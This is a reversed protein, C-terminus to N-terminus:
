GLEVELEIEGDPILRVRLNINTTIPTHFRFSQPLEARKLLAKFHRQLNRAGLPTGVSSPFVLGQEQWLGARAIREELQRKRHKKLAETAKTTLRIQRSRGSEPAEFIRGSRAESLTRRVQLTGAELDVDEWRLALLEGQRL